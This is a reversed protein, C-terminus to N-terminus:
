QDCEFRRLSGSWIIHELTWLGGSVQALEKKLSSALICINIHIFFISYMFANFYLITLFVVQRWAEIPRPWSTKELATAQCDFRPGCQTEGTSGTKDDDDDEINELDDDTTVNQDLGTGRWSGRCDFRSRNWTKKMIVIMIMIVSWNQTWPKKWIM